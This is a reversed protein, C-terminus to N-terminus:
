LVYGIDAHESFAKGLGLRQAEDAVVVEVNMSVFKGTRSKKSPALTHELAGVIEGVAARMLEESTGFITYPWTSPYDIQPRDHEGFTQM